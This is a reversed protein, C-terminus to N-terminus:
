LIEKAVATIFALVAPPAENEVESAEESRFFM